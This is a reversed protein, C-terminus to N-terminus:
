YSLDCSTSDHFLLVYYYMITCLLVYCYMITCLLVYCASFTFPLSWKMIKRVMVSNVHFSLRFRRFADSCYAGQIGVYLCYVGQIGVYLCYVGQIGVYLGYVGQIGVYLYYVGTCRSVFGRGGSRSAHIKFQLGLSEIIKLDTVSDM